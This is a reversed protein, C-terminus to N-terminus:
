YPTTLAFLGSKRLLWRELPRAIIRALSAALGDCGDIMNFANTLGVIALITIPLSVFGLDFTHGFGFPNGLTSIELGTSLLFILCVTLQILLKIRAKLDFKDDLVGLFLFLSASIVTPETYKAWMDGFILLSVGSTLFVCIGGILPIINQHTKRASPKDVLPIKRAVPKLILSLAVMLLVASLIQPAQQQIAQFM